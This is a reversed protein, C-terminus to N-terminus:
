HYFRGADIVLTQGTISDTRCFAVVQEAVDDRSAARKLAAGARVREVYAPDLADTMRTGEMLGPAVGNVLIDPALAVALCRTLHNLGAKSVAYAISSGSPTFGALSSVNVIRGQGHRRLLPVAARSLLFPSTLNRHLLEEWVDHTLADLDPYPVWRNAAANNVLIDLRGFERAAAELLPEVATPDALDAALPLARRGHYAGLEGALATAAAHSERYVAVVHCGAAALAHCIRSGLGGTGGTVLAVTADLQM